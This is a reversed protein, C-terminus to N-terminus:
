LEPGDDSPATPETFSKILDEYASSVSKNDNNNSYDGGKNDKTDNADIDDRNEWIGVNSDKSDEKGEGDTERYEKSSGSKPEVEENEKEESNAKIIRPKTVIVDGKDAPKAETTPAQNIPAPIEVTPQTEPVKPSVGGVPQPISPEEKKPEAKPEEKKPEEKKPEEKKLEEKKPEEKKPETKPTEKKPEVKPNEKKPDEKKPEEKKPEEKKPEEKKPEEKKPEEKKPEEKKPEAKPKEDVTPPSQPQRPTPVKSDDLGTLPNIGVPRIVGGSKFFDDISRITGTGTYALTGDKNLQIDKDEVLKNKYANITDNMKVFQKALAGAGFTAVGALPGATLGVMLAPIAPNQLLNKAWQPLINKFASMVMDSKADKEANVSEAQKQSVPTEVSATSEHSAPVDATITDNLREGISDHNENQEERMADYEEKMAKIYEDKNELAGFNETVMGGKTIM